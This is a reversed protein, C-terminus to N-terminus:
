DKPGTFLFWKNRTNVASKRVLKKPDDIYSGKTDKLTKLVLPKYPFVVPFSISNTLDGLIDLSLVRVLMTNGISINKFSSLDLLLPVITGIHDEFFEKSSTSIQKLIRLTSLKLEGDPYNLCSLLVPFLSPLEKLLLSRPIKQIVNSISTLFNCMSVESGKSDKFGNLLPGKVFKFFKQRYVSKVFARSKKTLFGTEDDVLISSFSHSALVSIKIDDDNSSINLLRILNDVIEYGLNNSSIVLGKAVWTYVTLCNKRKFFEQSSCFIINELDKLLLLDLCNINKNVFNSILIAISLNLTTNKTRLNLQFLKQVLSKADMPLNQDPPCAAVAAALVLSTDSTTNVNFHVFFSSNSDQNTFHDFSTNVIEDRVNRELHANLEILLKATKRIVKINDFTNKDNQIGSLNILRLFLSNSVSKIANVEAENSINYSFKQVSKYISDLIRLYYNELKRETEETSASAENIKSENLRILKEMLKSVIIEFLVSIESIKELANIINDFTLIANEFDTLKEPLIEFLDPITIELLIEPRHIGFKVLAELATSEVDELEENDGEQQMEPGGLLQSTLLFESLGMIAVINLPIYNDSLSKGFLEFLRDKYPLIPNFTDEQEDNNVSGYILRASEVLDVLVQLSNKKGTVVRIDSFDTLLKPVVEACVYNCTPESARAVSALVKGSQKALISEPLTLNKLCETLILNLFKKSSDEQKIVPVTSLAASISKLAALALQECDDNTSNFISDKLHVWLEEIHPILDSADYVKLCAIFADIADMKAGISTSSIKELLLPLAYPSFLPSASVCEFIFDDNMNMKIFNANEVLIIEFIEYVLLRVSQQFSQVSLEAFISKLIDLMQNQEVVTHKLIERIGKLIEAVSPQDYLKELFYSLLVKGEAKSLADTKEIVSSLLGLGKSRVFPDQSTLSPELSNVLRLFNITGNNIAITIQDIIEISDTSETTLNFFKKVLSTVNEENM